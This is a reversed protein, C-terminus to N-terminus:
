DYWASRRLLCPQLSSAGSMLGAPLLELANPVPWEPCKPKGQTIAMNFFLYMYRIRLGQPSMLVEGRHHKKVCSPDAELEFMIGYYLNDLLFVSPWAYKMGHDMTAATFVAPYSVHTEMGLNGLPQSEHLCGTHLIRAACHAFTGHFVTLSDPTRPVQANPKYIYKIFGVGGSAMPIEGCGLEVELLDGLQRDQLWQQFRPRVYGEAFDEQCRYGFSAMPLADVKYKYSKWRNGWRLHVKGLTDFYMPPFEPWTTPDALTAADEPEPEAEMGLTALDPVDVWVWDDGGDPSLSMLTQTAISPM